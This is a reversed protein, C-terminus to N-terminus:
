SVVEFLGWGLGNSNKSFPRGEGIGVQMGARALLNAVDQASFQQADWRIRVAAKWQEWMPRWRIDAVGTDNRVLAEHIRPEGEIKVLPTGEDADFGDAEIFVSMKAQTMKFGVVRCADIMANRFSPAPIGVWGERSFHTAQKYDDEFKRPERKKGKTAQSGARHKAMMMERAKASFKHQVYPSVGVINFVAVEFKPSEIVVSRAEKSQAM